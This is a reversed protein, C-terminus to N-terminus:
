ADVWTIGGGMFGVPGEIIEAPAKLPPYYGREWQMNRESFWFQAYSREGNELVTTEFSTLQGPRVGQWRGWLKSRFSKIRIM